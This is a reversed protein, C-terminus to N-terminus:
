CVVVDWTIGFRDRVTGITSGYSLKKLDNVLLGDDSLGTLNAEAHENDNIEIVFKTSSFNPEIGTDAVYLNLDGVVLEAHFVKGLLSPNDAVGEEYPYIRKVEASLVKQYIKILEKAEYKLHLYAAVKM